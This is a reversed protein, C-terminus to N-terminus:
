KGRRGIRRADRRLVLRLAHLETLLAEDRTEIAQALVQAYRMASQHASGIELVQECESLAVQLMSVGREDLPRIPLPRRLFGFEPPLTHDELWLLVWGGALAVILALTGGAIVSQFSAVLHIM